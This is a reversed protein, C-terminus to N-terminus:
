PRPCDFCRARCGFGREGPAAAKGGRVARRVYGAPGGHDMDEWTRTLRVDAAYPSIRRTVISPRASPTCRTLSRRAVQPLSHRDGRGLAAWDPMGPRNGVIVFALGAVVLGILVAGGFFAMASGGSAQHPHFGGAVLGYGIQYAIVGGALAASIATVDKQTFSLTLPLLASCGLAALIFVAFTSLGLRHILVGVAILVALVVIPVVYGAMRATVSYWRDVAAFFVRGAALTAGWFTAFAISTHLVPGASSVHVAATLQAPTLVGPPRAVRLESWIVLVAACVAYAMAFVSYVLSRVTCTFAERKPRKPSGVHRPLCKARLLLGLLLAAALAPLGLWHNLHVFLAAIGPAILAGAAILANLWLVSVDEACPHLFRFYALLVPVTLGFGAGLCASAALMLPFALAHDHEVQSAALMLAASMLGLSLGVVYALRSAHRRALGFGTLSVLIATALEPMVLEGYMAGTMGFEHSGTIIASASPFIVLVLGEVLATAGVLRSEATSFVTRWSGQPVAPSVSGGSLRQPHQYGRRPGTV